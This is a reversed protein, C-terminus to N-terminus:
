LGLDKKVARAVEKVVYTEEEFKAPCRILEYLYNNPFPPTHKGDWWGLIEDPKDALKEGVLLKQLKIMREVTYELQGRTGVFFPPLKEYLEQDYRDNKYCAGNLLFQKYTPDVIIHNDNEGEIELFTHNDEHRGYSVKTHKLNFKMHPFAHRIYPSIVFTTPGCVNYGNYAKHREERSGYKELRSRDYACQSFCPSDIQAADVVKNFTGNIHQRLGYVARFTAPVSTVRRTVRLAM